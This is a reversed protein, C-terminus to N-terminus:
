GDTSVRDIGIGPGAPEITGAVVPAPDPALDDGFRDGTALGCAPLDGLAAALHVAATRGVVSEFISSVVPTAGVRRVATAAGLAVDVGGLATPKLVYRDAAGAALLEDLPTVALSEDLAIAPDFSRLAAHAPGREATLPQEVAELDLGSAGELFRAAAPRDWAGNADVRIAVGSGVAERIARLRDIDAEVVRKGVKVKVTEFGADVAEAVAEVTATPSGDGVTANVAVPAPRSQGLRQALSEGAQKAQRDVLALSIAHRAAPFRLRGADTASVVTLAARPGSTEMARVARELVPRTESRPETFPVLPAADGFGTPSQGLRVLFGRRRELRERATVLPPVLSLDFPELSARM